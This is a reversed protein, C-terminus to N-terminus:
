NASLAGVPFSVTKSCPLLFARVAFLCKPAAPFGPEWALGKTLAFPLFNSRARPRLSDRPYLFYIVNNYETHFPLALYLTLM